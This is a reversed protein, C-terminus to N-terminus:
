PRRRSPVRALNRAEQVAQRAREAPTLRLLERIASRDVGIGSRPESELRSGCARLLAELTDVRPRVRGVEIRAIAPQPVGTREALARQTLGARARAHRLLHAASM